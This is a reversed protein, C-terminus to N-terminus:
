RYISVLGSIGNYRSHLFSDILQEQTNMPIKLIKMLKHFEGLNLMLDNMQRIAAEIKGVELYRAIRYLQLEIVM